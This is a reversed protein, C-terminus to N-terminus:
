QFALTFLWQSNVFSCTSNLINFDVAKHALTIQLPAQSHWSLPSSLTRPWVDSNLSKINDLFKADKSIKLLYYDFYCNCCSISM